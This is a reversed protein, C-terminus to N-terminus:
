APQRECGGLQQMRHVEGGITQPMRREQQSRDDLAQEVEAWWAPQSAATFRAM